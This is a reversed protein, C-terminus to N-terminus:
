KIIQVKGPKINPYLKHYEVWWEYFKKADADWIRICGETRKLTKVTYGEQRGGHIRIASRGSKSAEDNNGKIPEFVLRPNPGYSLNNSPTSSYFPTDININYTGYPVDAGTKSRNEGKIGELLCDNITLVLNKNHDFVEIKGRRCNNRIPTKEIHECNSGTYHETIIVNWVGKDITKNTSIATVENCNFTKSKNKEGKEYWIKINEAIEWVYTKGAEKKGEKHFAPNAAYSVNRWYNLNKIPKGNKYSIQLSNDFVIHNSQNGKGCDVPFLIALYFDTLTNLKGKVMDLNLYKEVYDLQKIQDMALLETRTIGISKAADKGIQILGVYGEKSEDKHKKFTGCTPDFTGGTEHAIAAMLNNAEIKQRKAIEIIKKRFECSVKEGWILNTFKEKCICNSEKENEDPIDAVVPKNGTPKQSTPQKDKTATGKSESWDWLETLKNSITEIFGKEEKKSKPKQEAPSGKAKPITNRKPTDPSEHQKPFPNNINVNESAHKKTKYYEATVYFEIQRVDTEGKMAKQMLAKTLIFDVQAVGNKGVKIPASIEIPKNDPHHGTEKADDEWLTFIIEKGTLNVCYAKARLKEMFSFTSGKTDDVYYLEVKNIKPVTSPKPTIILGGGEPKYLYAELRYTHKWATEGFTFEGVGKKKINTSTFQGTKRKKFLEWTVDALNRESVSTDAYWEIIHYVQKEGVVPSINGSVKSVGKKSM